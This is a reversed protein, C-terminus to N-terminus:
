RRGIKRRNGSGTGQIWAILILPKVIICSYNITEGYRGKDGELDIRGLADTIMKYFYVHVYAMAKTLYEWLTGVAQTLVSCRNHPGGPLCLRTKTM